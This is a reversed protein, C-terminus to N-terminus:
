AGNETNDIGAMIELRSLREQMRRNERRQWAEGLFHWEAPRIGWSSGAARVLEQREPEVQETWADKLLIPHGESDVVLESFAAPHEVIVAPIKRFEDEWSNYCLGGWPCDTSGDEMVGRRVLEDRMHQAIPGTHIRAKDGKESIARLWKWGLIRVAGYADLWSDPIDVPESKEDGDCTVVPNNLLYINGIRFSPGGIDTAGDTSPRIRVGNIYWWPTSVKTSTNYSGLFIDSGTTALSMAVSNTVFGPGAGGAISALVGGDVTTNSVLEALWKATTNSLLRTNGVKVGHPLIQFAEKSTGGPDVTAFRYSSGISDDQPGDFTMQMGRYRIYASQRTEGEFTHQAMLFQRPDYVANDVRRDGGVHLAPASLPVPSYSRVGRNDSQVPVSNVGGLYIQKYMPNFLQEEITPAESSTLNHFTVRGTSGYWITLATEFKARTANWFMGIGQLESGSSSFSIPIRGTVEGNVMWSASSGQPSDGRFGSLAAYVGSNVRIHGPYLTWVPTIRGLAEFSVPAFVGDSLDSFKCIYWGTGGAEAAGAMWVAAHEHDYGFVYVPAYSTYASLNVSAVTNAVTAGAVLQIKRIVFNDDGVWIYRSGDAGYEIAFYESHGSPLIGTRMREDGIGMSPNWDFEIFVAQEPITKNLSSVIISGARADFEIGQTAKNSSNGWDAISTKEGFPKIAGYNKSAHNRIPIAYGSGAPIVPYAGSKPKDSAVILETSNVIVSDGPELSLQALDSISEVVLVGSVNSLGSKETLVLEKKSNRVTISFSAATYISAISGQRSPYGNLTRIPQPAPQTLAADWYVPVPSVEPNQDVKGIYIYGNNLPSGNKDHYIQQPPNIKLGM